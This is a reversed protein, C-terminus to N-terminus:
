VNAEGSPDISSSSWVVSSFNFGFLKYLLAFSDIWLLKFWNLSVILLKLIISAKNSTLKSVVSPSTWFAPVSAIWNNLPSASACTFPVILALPM